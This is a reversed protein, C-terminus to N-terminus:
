QLAKIVDALTATTSNSATIASGNGINATAKRLEDGVIILDGTALSKPAKGDATAIDAIMKRTLTESEAIQEQIFLKTDARYTVLTDGTDAFIHNEGLLTSLQAPTLQITLPTALPYVFQIPNSSLWTRWEAKSSCNDYIFDVAYGYGSFSGNTRQSVAKTFENCYYGSSSISINESKRDLVSIRFLNGDAVAYFDWTEDDSGDFTELKHTVTLMGTTVDLTGGYREEGLDITVTQIQPAEFATATSGLELQPTGTSIDQESINKDVNSYARVTLRVYWANINHITFTKTRQGSFSADGNEIRSGLWNKNADFYNYNIWALDATGNQDISMTYETNPKISIFPSTQRKLETPFYNGSNYQGVEWDTTPCLNKGTRTVTASSWGSIPCINEYPAFTADSISSLRIMPYMKVNSVTTGSM